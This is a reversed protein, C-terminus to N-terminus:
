PITGKVAVAPVNSGFTFWGGQSVDAGINPYLNSGNWAGVFDPANIDDSTAVVWYQTNATIATAPINVTVLQCCTGFAPIHNSSVQQLQAGVTNTGSDAYLGINVLKVGSIYGVAAQLQTVTSNQKPTFPIAVWQENTTTQTLGTVYYGGIAYNNTPTPGLNSFIKVTATGSDRTPTAVGHLSGHAIKLGANQAMLTGCALTLIM